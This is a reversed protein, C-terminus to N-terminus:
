SAEAGGSTLREILSQLREAGDSILANSKARLAEVWAAYNEVWPKAAPLSRGIEPALLYVIAGLSVTLVALSFGM